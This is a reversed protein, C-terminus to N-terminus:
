ATHKPPREPGETLFGSHSTQPFVDPASHFDSVGPMAMIPGSMAMTCCDACSACAHDTSKQDSMHECHDMDGGIMAAAPATDHMSGMCAGMAAMGRLPLTLLILM